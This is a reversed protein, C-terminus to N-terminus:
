PSSVANTDSTGAGPGLQVAASLAGRMLLNQERATAGLVARGVCVTDRGCAIWLGMGAGRLGEAPALGRSAQWHALWSAFEGEGWPRCDPRHLEDLPGPNLRLSQEPCRSPEGGSAVGVWRNAGDLELLQKWTRLDAPRASRLALEHSLRLPAYGEGAEWLDRSALSVVDAAGSLAAVVCALRGYRALEPRPGPLAALSLLLLAGGVGPLLYEPHAPALALPVVLGGVVLLIAFGAVSRHGPAGRSWRAAGLLAGATLALPWAAGWSARPASFFSGAAALAATAERGGELRPLLLTFLSEDPHGPVWLQWCLLLAGAALTVGLGAALAPRWQRSTAAAIVFAAIPLLSGRYLFFALACAAGAVLWRRGAPQGGSLTWALVPILWLFETHNGFPMLQWALVFAPPLVWPAAALALDYGRARRGFGLLLAGLCLLELPLGALHFLWGAASLLPAMLAVLLQILLTGQAFHGYQYAQVFHRLSDTQTSQGNALEWGLRGLGMLEQSYLLPALLRAEALRLVVLLGLVLLVSRARRLGAGRTGEGSM